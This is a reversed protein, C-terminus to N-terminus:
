TTSARDTFAEAVVLAVSNFSDNWRPRDRLRHPNYRYELLLPMRHWNKRNFRDGVYGAFPVILAMLAFMVTRTSYLSDTFSPRESNLSFRGWLDIRRIFSIRLFSSGWYNISLQAITKLPKSPKSAM